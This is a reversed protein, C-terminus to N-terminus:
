ECQKISFRSRVLYNIFERADVHVMSYHLVGIVYTGLYVKNKRTDYDILSKGNASIEIVNARDTSSWKAYLVISLIQEIINSIESEIEIGMQLLKYNRILVNM